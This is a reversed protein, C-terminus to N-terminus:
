SGNQKQKSETISGNDQSNIVTAAVQLSKSKKVIRAQIETRTVKPDQILCFNLVSRLLQCNMNTVVDEPLAAQQAQSEKDLSSPVNSFNVNHPNANEIDSGQQLSSSTVQM